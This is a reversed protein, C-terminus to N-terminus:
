HAREVTAEELFWNQSGELLHQDLKKNKKKGNNEKGTKKKMKEKKPQHHIADRNQFSRVADPNRGERSIQQMQEHCEYLALWNLLIADSKLFSLIAEPNKGEISIQQMQTFSLISDPASCNLAFVLYFSFFAFISPSPSFGIHSSLSFFETHLTTHFTLRFYIM